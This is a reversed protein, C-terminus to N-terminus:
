FIRLKKFKVQTWHCGAQKAIAMAINKRTLNEEDGTGSFDCDEIIADGLYIDFVAFFNKKM